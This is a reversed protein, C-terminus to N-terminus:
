INDCSQAVIQGRRNRVDTTDGDVQAPPRARDPFSPLHSISSPALSRRPCAAHMHGSSRGVAVVVLLPKLNLSRHRLVEVDIDWPYVRTTCFRLSIATARCRVLNLYACCVRVDEERKAVRRTTRCALEGKRGVIM